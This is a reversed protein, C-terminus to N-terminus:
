RIRWLKENFSGDRNIPYPSNFILEWSEKAYKEPSLNISYFYAGKHQDIINMYFDVTEQEMEQISHVSIFMDVEINKIEDIRWAPLSIFGCKRPCMQEVFQPATLLGIPSYDVGFYVLAFFYNLFPIALRGYGAGIDVIITLEESKRLFPILVNAQYIADGIDRYNINDYYSVLNHRDYQYIASQDSQVPYGDGVFGYPLKRDTEVAYLMKPTMRDHWYKGLNCALNFDKHKQVDSVIEGIRSPDIIIDKYNM